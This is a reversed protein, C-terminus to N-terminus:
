KFNYIYYKALIKANHSKRQFTKKLFKLSIIISLNISYVLKCCFNNPKIKEKNRSIPKFSLLIIKFVKKDQIM